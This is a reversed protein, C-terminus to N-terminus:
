PDHAPSDEELNDVLYSESEERITYGSPLDKARIWVELKDLNMVTM